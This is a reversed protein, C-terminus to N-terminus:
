TAKSDLGAISKKSKGEIAKGEINEPPEPNSTVIQSRLHRVEPYSLQFMFDKPFRELNRTVAQILAGTTVGYLAALDADFMVKEGRIFFITKEIIEAPIVSQNDKM